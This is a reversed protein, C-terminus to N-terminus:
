KKKLSNLLKQLTQLLNKPAERLLQAIKSKGVYKQLQKILRTIASQNNKQQHSAPTTPHATASSAPVSSVQSSPQPISVTTSPLSGAGGPPASSPIPSSVGSSLPISSPASSTVPVPTVSPCPQTGPPTGSNGGILNILEKLLRIIQQILKSLQGKNNNHKSKKPQQQKKDDNDKKNKQGKDDDDSVKQQHVATVSQSNTSTACPQTSVIPGSPLPSTQGTPLSTGGSVPPASLFGSPVASPPLTPCAGLCGFLTPTLMFSPTGTGLPVTPPVLRPTTQTGTLSVTFLDSLDTANAADGIASNVGFIEAISKVLSSHSYQITNSYNKKAYPSLVILGIPNNGSGGEDWTIFIAGGNKYAQSNMIVPLQQSLWTDGQQITGDHMDDILNPTIFNYGSVKNAALDGALETYPRVHSICNQNSSSPPSGVVDQFFLMPLHKPAFNGSTTIPCTSGNINEEYAKWPIGAQTLETVLHKTSNTSNASSPDNDNTFTHDPLANTGAELWIYNPESPHLSGKGPPVNYFSEAHAGMPLLTNTIYPAAAGKVSSWDKNEMLIVFVTNIPSAAYAPHVASLFSVIGGVFVLSCFAILLKRLFCIKM